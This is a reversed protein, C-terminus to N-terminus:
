NLEGLFFSHQQALTGRVVFGLRKGHFVTFVNVGRRNLM